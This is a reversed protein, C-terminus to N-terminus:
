TSQPPRRSAGAATTPWSSPDLLLRDAVPIIGGFFVLQTMVDVALLPMIEEQLPGAGFARTRAAGVGRM